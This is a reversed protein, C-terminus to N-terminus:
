KRSKKVNARSLFAFGPYFFSNQANTEITQRITKKSNM